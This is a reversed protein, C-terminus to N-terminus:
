IRDSVPEGRKLVGCKVENNMLFTNPKRNHSVKTHSKLWVNRTNCAINLFPHITVDHDGGTTHGDETVWLGHPPLM